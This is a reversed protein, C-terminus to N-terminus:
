LIVCNEDWFSSLWSAGSVTPAMPDFTTSIVAMLAHRQLVLRKRFIVRLEQDLSELNPLGVCFFNHEMVTQPRGDGEFVTWPRESFLQGVVPHQRYRDIVNQNEKTSLADCHTIIVSVHKKRNPQDLGFWTIAQQIAQWEPEYVRGNRLVFVLHNMKTFGDKVGKAALELVEANSLKSDLLGVTDIFNYQIPHPAVCTMAASEIHKTVPETGGSSTFLDKGLLFNILRSKGAGTPGVFVVTQSGKEIKHGWGTPEAQTMAIPWKAWQLHHKAFHGAKGDIPVPAKRIQELYVQLTVTSGIEVSYRKTTFDYAKVTAEQGNFQRLNQHEINFKRSDEKEMKEM